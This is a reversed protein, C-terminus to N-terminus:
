SPVAHLEKVFIIWDGANVQITETAFAYGSKRLDLSHSGIAVENIVLVKKSDEPTSGKYQDNIYVQVGGPITRIMMSGPNPIATPSITPTKQASGKLGYGQQMGSQFTDQMKLAGESNSMGFLEMIQMFFAILNNASDLLYGHFENMSENTGLMASGRTPVAITLDSAKKLIDDAALAGPSLYCAVIIIAFLIRTRNM